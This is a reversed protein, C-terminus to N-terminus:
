FDVGAKVILYRGPLPYANYAGPTFSSSVGYDYAGKRNEANHLIASVYVSKKGTPRFTAAVDMWRYSPIKEGFSNSQDNDLYQEGQYREALSLSLQPLAQWDIRAYATVRPVAPVWNGQYAGQDFKVVQYTGSVALWLAKDLQWYSNLSVGRRKTPDLNVNSGFADTAIENRYKGQWVTLTSYQGAKQWNAGLSYLKGTQTKLPTTTWGAAYDRLEDFSAYRASREAKVFLSVSDSLAQRLGASWMGVDSNKHPLFAPNDEQATRVWEHRAGLTLWTTDTLGLSDQAYVAQTSRQNRDHDNSWSAQSDYHYRTRFYDLGLMWHHAVGWDAVGTLRPSVNLTRDTSQTAQGFSLYDAKQERVRLGADLHLDVAESLQYRVSPLIRLTNDEGWDNEYGPM